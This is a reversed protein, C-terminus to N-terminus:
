RNPLPGVDVGRAAHVGLPVITAILILAATSVLAGAVILATAVLASLFPGVSTPRPEPVKTERM